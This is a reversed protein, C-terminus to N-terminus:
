SQQEQTNTPEPPFELGKTLACIFFLQGGERYCVHLAENWELKGIKKSSLSKIAAIL